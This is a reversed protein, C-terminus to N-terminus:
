ANNITLKWDIIITFNGGETPVEVGKDKALLYYACLDEKLSSINNPYLGIKRVTAGSELSLFPVRFHYTVSGSDSGVGPTATSDYYVANSIKSENDWVLSDAKLEDEGDLEEDLAKFLVVKCPRSSKAVTYNGVLSDVFFNFLKKTGHNHFYNDYYVRDEDVVQVHIDGVYTFNHKSKTHKEIKKAM